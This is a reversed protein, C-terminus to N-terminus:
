LRFTLEERSSDRSFLLKSALRCHLLSLSPPAFDTNVQCIGEIVPASTTSRCRSGGSLCPTGPLIIHLIDVLVYRDNNLHSLLRLPCILNQLSYEYAFFTFCCDEACCLARAPLRLDKPIPFPPIWHFFSFFIRIDWLLLLGLWLPITEERHVVLLEILFPFVLSSLTM